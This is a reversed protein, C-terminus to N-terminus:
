ISVLGNGTWQNARCILPSTEIHYHCGDHFLYAIEAIEESLANDVVLKLISDKNFIYELLFRCNLFFCNRREFEQKRAM